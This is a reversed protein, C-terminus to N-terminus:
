DLSILPFGILSVTVTLWVTMVELLITADCCGGALVITGFWVIMAQSLRKLYAIENGSQFADNAESRIMMCAPMLLIILSLDLSAGAVWEDRIIAFAGTILFYCLVYVIGFKATVSSPSAKKIMGEGGLNM